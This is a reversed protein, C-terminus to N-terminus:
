SCLENGKVRSMQGWIGSPVSLGVPVLIQDKYKDQFAKVAALTRGGFYGTTCDAPLLGESVLLQQMTKVESGSMGAKLTQTFYYLPKPGTSLSTVKDWYGAGYVRARVWDESLHRLKKGGFWASDQITVYRKGDKMFGSNPLICVCHRIETFSNLLLKPNQIEPYDRGWEDQTSYILIPVGHGHAAIEGLVQIDNYNDKVTFYTLGKFIQAETFEQPTLVLNNAEIESYPTPLTTYLPAGKVRYTEFLDQPWSGADPYNSRQRYAFIQSIRTYTGLDAKREIALALGVGHAVCSSTRNQNEYFYPSETIQTNGFANLAEPVTREEHIYDKEKKDSPRTDAIVGTSSAKNVLNLLWSILVNLFNM